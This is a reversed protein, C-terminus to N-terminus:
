GTLFYSFTSICKFNFITLGYEHVLKGFCVEVSNKDVFVNKLVGQVCEYFKHMVLSWRVKHVSKLDVNYTTCISTSPISPFHVCFVKDIWENMWENIEICM